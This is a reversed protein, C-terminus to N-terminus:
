AIDALTHQFYILPIYMSVLVCVYMCVYTRVYMCIYTYVYMYVCTRVYMCLFMRVYTCVCTCVNMCEVHLYSVVTRFCTCLMCEACVEQTCVSARVTVATAVAALIIV